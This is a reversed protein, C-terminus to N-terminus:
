NKYRIIRTKKSSYQGKLDGLKISTNSEKNSLNEIVIIKNDDKVLTLALIEKNHQKLNAMNKEEDDRPLEHIGFQSELTM